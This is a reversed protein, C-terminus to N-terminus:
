ISSSYKTEIAVGKTLTQYVVCYRETLKKLSAMQEDTANTDLDFQLRINKFGVPVEKSVGLTGKFDLDGEATITGGKIEVSIATGVAQLTVGACAVLAELLMDGSCALMGTGGTALHLGAEVLAKGTEVKCSIGEGIKGQAKLTIVASEPQERYKEKLPSQLNKLDTANM